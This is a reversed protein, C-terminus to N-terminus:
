WNESLRTRITHVMTWTTSNLAARLASSTPHISRPDAPAVSASFHTEARAASGLRTQRHVVLMFFLDRRWQRVRTDIDLYRSPAPRRYIGQVQDM